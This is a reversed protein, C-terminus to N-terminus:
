DRVPVGYHLRYRDSPAVITATEVPRGTASYTREIVMVPVGAPVDLADQEAATPMRASVVEDSTTIRRGILDFRAVVGVAPSAEPLEIPTGGTIALPEWSTALQIPEGDSRYVYETRMVPDGEAIGLREATAADAVGAASWHDWGPVAGSGEVSRATPSGEREDYWVQSRRVLSRRPRVFTGKGPHGYVLGETRLVALAHDAVQRSVSFARTLDASSPLKDGPQLEGEAIKSRLADAVQLYAPRGGGFTVMRRVGAHRRPRRREVLKM